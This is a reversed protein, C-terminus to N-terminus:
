PLGHAADRQRQEEQETMVGHLERLHEIRAEIEARNRSDPNEALARELDQAARLYSGDYGRAGPSCSLFVYFTFLILYFTFVWYPLSTQCKVNSTQSAFLGEKTSNVM